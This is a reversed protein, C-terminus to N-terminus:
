MYGSYIQLQKVELVTECRAVATKSRFGGWPSKLNSVAVHAWFRNLCVQKPTELFGQVWKRYFGDPVSFSCACARPIKERM